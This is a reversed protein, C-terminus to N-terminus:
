GTAAEAQQQTAAKALLQPLKMAAPVVSKGMLELVAVKEADSEDVDDILRSFGDLRSAAIWAGLGKTKSWRYMNNMSAAQMSLWSLPTDPLPVVGCIQNKKEDDDFLGDVHAILAASFTPQFARVFQPVIRRGQFIPVAPRREAASASCDVYLRQPDSPVSGQQLVIQDAEICVVRGLRIVQKITRLADLEAHSVTAAHYMTPPVTPDLRLLQDHAELQAFLSEASEAEAVCAMQRAMGGISQMFFEDGPQVNARNIFWSDRPMVWSIAAPSVGNELLWLCADIGTKGAGVVVYGSPPARLKPLDNLPICRLGAATAYQPPHTSPVATNLYTTDVVKKSFQVTQRDGGLLSTIHHDGTDDGACDSMPFYRVRGSAVFAQMLSEYYSVIEAATARECMGRNLPHTDRSDGGLPRSNVGYYASPQHLRVFPYADNWHGGPGHHRDVIVIDASTEHFITDAFAMGVAGSGIILYDTEITAASM